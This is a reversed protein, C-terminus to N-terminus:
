HALYATIEYKRKYKPDELNGLLHWSFRIAAKKIEIHGERTKRKLGLSYSGSDANDIRYYDINDRETELGMESLFEDIKDLAHVVKDFRGNGDMGSKSLKDSIKKKEFKELKDSDKTIYDLANGYKKQVIKRVIKKLNM